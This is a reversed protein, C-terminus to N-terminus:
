RRFVVGIREALPPLLLGLWLGARRPIVRRELVPATFSMGYGFYGVFKMRARSGLAILDSITYERFHQPDERLAPHGRLYRYANDMRMRNPTVAAVWGGPKVQRRCIELFGQPDSIHEIVHFSVALDYSGEPLEKVDAALRRVKPHPYEREAAEISMASYDIGVVEDVEPSSAMLVDHYGVGCGIDIIRRPKARRLVERAEIARSRDWDSNIYTPWEETVLEDFFRRQDERYERYRKHVGTV